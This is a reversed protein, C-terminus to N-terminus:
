QCPPGGVPRDGDDAPAWRHALGTLTAAAEPGTHPLLTPSLSYGLKAAWEAPWEPGTIVAGTTTPTISCVGEHNAHLVAATGGTVLEALYELVYTPLFLPDVVLLTGTEVLATGTPPTTRTM